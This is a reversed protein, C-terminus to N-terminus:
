LELQKPIQILLEQDLRISHVEADTLVKDFGTQLFLIKRGPMERSRM